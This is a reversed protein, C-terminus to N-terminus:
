APQHFSDYTAVYFPIGEQKSKLMSMGIVILVFVLYIAFEFIGAELVCCEDFSFSRSWSVSPVIFLLTLSVLKRGLTFYL